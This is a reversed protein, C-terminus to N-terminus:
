NKFRNCATVFDTDTIDQCRGNKEIAWVAGAGQGIIECNTYPSVIGVVDGSCSDSRYLKTPNPHSAASVLYCARSLTTDIINLCSGNIKVAWVADSGITSCDTTNNATAVLSGNCSDSRYFEVTGGRRPDPVPRPQVNCQTFVDRAYRQLDAAYTLCERSCMVDCPNQQAIATLSALVVGLSLFLKM